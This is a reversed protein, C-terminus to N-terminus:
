KIFAEGVLSRVLRVGCSHIAEVKVRAANASKPAIEWLGLAYVGPARTFGTEPEGIRMVRADNSTGDHDVSYGVLRVFMCDRHKTVNMDIVVRRADQEVVEINGTVVPYWRDFQRTGADFL